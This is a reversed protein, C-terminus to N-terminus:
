GAWGSWDAGDKRQRFTRDKMKQGVVCCWGLLVAPGKTRRNFGPRGWRSALADGPHQM